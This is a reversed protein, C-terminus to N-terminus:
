QKARWIKTGRSGLLVLDCTGDAWRVRGKVTALSFRDFVEVIRGVHCGSPEPYVCRVEDGEIAENPTVRKGALSHPKM